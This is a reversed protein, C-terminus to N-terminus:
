GTTIALQESDTLGRRVQGASVEFQKRFARSFAAESQYGVKEAVIAVALGSELYNWAIQMRWWTVYQMPTWGSLAKFTEAFQTRSMAASQALSVLQWPQDPAQHIAQIAKSIQRHSFLSLVGLPQESTEVFHRLSYAFLLECLRDMMQSNASETRLSEGVMLALMRDLWPTTENRKIVLVKPLSDLLLESGLHRFKVKGCVLSTGRIHQSCSISLLQQPGVMTPCSTLTHPIERPFIVLDGDVLEWEGIGPVELLANNQLTFHFCTEGTPQAELSWKGCARASLYLDVNLRILQILDDICAM